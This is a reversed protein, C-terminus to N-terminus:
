FSIKINWLKPGAKLIKSDIDFKKINEIFM